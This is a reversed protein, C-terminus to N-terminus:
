CTSCLTTRPPGGSLFKPKSSDGTLVTRIGGAVLNLLWCDCHQQGAAERNPRTSESLLSWGSLCNTCRDYRAHEAAATSSQTAGAQRHQLFHSCIQMTQDPPPHAHATLGPLAVSHAVCSGASACVKNSGSATCSCCYHLRHQGSQKPSPQKRPSAQRRPSPSRDAHKSKYDEELFRGFLGCSESQHISRYVFRALLGM